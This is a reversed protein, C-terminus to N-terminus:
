NADLPEPDSGSGSMSGADAQDGREGVVFLQHAPVHGQCLSPWLRKPPDASIDYADGTAWRHLIVSSIHDTHLVVPYQLYFDATVQELPYMSGSRDPAGSTILLTDVGDKDHEGVLRQITAAVSAATHVTTYALVINYGTISVFPGTPIANLFPVAYFTADASITETGLPPMQLPMGASVQMRLAAVDPRYAVLAEILEEVAADDTKRHPRTNPNQDKGYWVIVTCGTLHGTRHRHQLVLKDRLNRFLAEASRRKEIAFAALELGIREGGPLTAFFDPPDNPNPEIAAFVENGTAGRCDAAFRQVHAWELAAKNLPADPRIWPIAQELALWRTPESPTGSQGAMGVVLPVGWPSPSMIMEEVMSPADPVSIPMAIFYGEGTKVSGASAADTM